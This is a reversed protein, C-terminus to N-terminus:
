GRIELRRERERWWSAIEGASTVWAGRAALHDLTALYARWWGPFQAEAAANPHWLLVALGGESEVRELHERVRAAAADADLHLSRFLAGDMATLPLELLEMPARRADDWPHYPAAIGARFGPTENYGLTSDYRFGARQQAAWTARIDFRLFHQRVGMAERGSADEIQKKQRSLEGPHTHSLYGGHLGVEFGREILTRTLQAVSMRHGDFQVADEFTYLADYEHRTTPAPPCFYFSSRFGRRSEEDAWRDFNWYPDGSWGFHTLARLMASMGGRFAYSDRGRAQRLLRWAAPVSYLTVDDVDHTLAAAFRAGNKWRPVPEVRVGRAEGWAAVRRALQRAHANVLPRDLVGLAHARSFFGSFCEWQDRRPNAIEEERSLQHWISHLWAEPLERPSRPAITAGRPALLPEGDFQAVELSAADWGGWEACTVVAAAAAPARSPVGVFVIADDAGVEGPSATARWELDLMRAVTEMTYRAAPNEWAGPDYLLCVRM